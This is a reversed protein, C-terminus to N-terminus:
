KSGRTSRRPSASSSARRELQAIFDRLDRYAMAAWAHFLRRTLDGCRAAMWRFSRARSMARPTPPWSCRWRASKRPRASRAAASHKAQQERSCTRRRRTGDHAIRGRARGARSRHADDGPNIGIVRVGKRGYAAALGATALMLAANAAGGPMHLSERGQRGHRHHQRDVGRGAHPWASCRSTPQICTASSSPTWRRTGRRGDLDDPTHAEGRGRFQRLVDIPGSRAWRKTSRLAERRGPPDPGRRNGSAETAVPPLRDCRPMSTTAAARFSRLARARARRVGGCMRPWHGQQRRHRRRGDALHFNM